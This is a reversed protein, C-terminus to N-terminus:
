PVRRSTEKALPHSVPKPSRPISEVRLKRFEILIQATRQVDYFDIIDPDLTLQPGLFHSGHFILVALAAVGRLLDLM